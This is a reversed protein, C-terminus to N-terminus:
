KLKQRSKFEKYWKAERWKKRLRKNRPGPDPQAIFSRLEQEQKELYRRLKIAEKRERAEQRTHMEEATPFLAEQAGNFDDVFRDAVSHFLAWNHHVLVSYGNDRDILSTPFFVVTGSTLKLFDRRDM